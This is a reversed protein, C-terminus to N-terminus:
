MVDEEDLKGIKEEPALDEEPGMQEMATERKYEKWKNCLDEKMVETDDDLDVEGIDQHGSMVEDVLEDWGEQSSVGQERALESVELYLDDVTFADTLKM